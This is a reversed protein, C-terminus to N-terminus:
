IEEDETEEGGSIEWNIGQTFGLDLQDIIEKLFVTQDGITNEDNDIKLTIMQTDQSIIRESGM